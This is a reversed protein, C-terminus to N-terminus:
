FRMATFGGDVYYAAGTIYSGAQRSLLLLTAGILEEPDGFRAMPTQSMIHGTRVSDLIARNQEAPFFGPCIANVRVGQPALERAVNQTLNIVAAKSASYAFVRSLPKDSTVSGINLISGGGHAAMHAGFVQCGWHTGRLNIDIVRQWDEDSVEFYESAANVGACNVLMDVRNLKALTQALLDEISKRQSVDVPLYIARGGAAEIAKVRDAGREAHSGAVVVTAGARAIGEALAGGLVGTGGIVVAVQGELGFLEDLYSKPM